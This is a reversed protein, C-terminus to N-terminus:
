LGTSIDKINPYAKEGAIERIPQGLLDAAKRNFWNEYARNAFRYKEDLDM